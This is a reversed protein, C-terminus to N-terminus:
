FNEEITDKRIFILLGVIGIVVSNLINKELIFYLTMFACLIMISLQISKYLEIKFYNRLKPYDIALVISLFGITLHRNPFFVSYIIDILVILIYCCYFIIKGYNREPLNEM